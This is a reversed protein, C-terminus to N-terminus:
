SRALLFVIEVTANGCWGDHGLMDLQKKRSAWVEVAVFLQWYIEHYDCHGHMEDGKKRLEDIEVVVTEERATMM